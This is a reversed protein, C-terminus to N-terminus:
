VHRSPSRCAAFACRAFAHVISESNLVAARSSGSRRAMAANTRSTLAVYAKRRVPAGNLAFHAPTRTRVRSMRDMGSSGCRAVHSFAARQHYTVRHHAGCLQHRVARECTEREPPTRGATLDSSSELTPAPVIMVYYTIFRLRRRRSCFSTIVYLPIFRLPEAGNNRIVYHACLRHLSFQEFRPQSASPTWRCIARFNRLKGLAVSM